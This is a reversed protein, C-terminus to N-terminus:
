SVYHLVTDDIEPFKEISKITVFSNTEVTIQQEALSVLDKTSFGHKSNMIESGPM